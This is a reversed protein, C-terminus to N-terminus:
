RLDPGAAATCDAREPGAWCAQDRTAKPDALTGDLIVQPPDVVLKADVGPGLCGHHRHLAWRTGAPSSTSQRQRLNGTLVVSIKAPRVGRAIVRKRCEESVVIVHDAWGTAAAELRRAFRIFWRGRAATFRAAIMEPTLELM